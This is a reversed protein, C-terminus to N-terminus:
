LLQIRSFAIIEILKNKATYRLVGVTSAVYRGSCTHGDFGAVLNALAGSVISLHLWFREATSEPTVMKCM